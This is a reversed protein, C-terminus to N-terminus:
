LARRANEFMAMWPSPRSRDGSTWSMQVNRFV